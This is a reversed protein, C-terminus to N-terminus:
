LNHFTCAFNLFSAPVSGALAGHYSVAGNNEIVIFAGGGACECLFRMATTPRYGVPLTTLTTVITTSGGTILGGLIITNGQKLVHAVAYGGNFNSWGNILTLNVRTATDNTAGTAIGNLKVKDAPSMVGALSTTASPISANSGGTNTVTVTTSTPSSGLDVTTLGQSLGDLKTKDAGSMLGPISATPTSLSVTGGTSLGIDIATPSVVTRSLTPTGLGDLKIKDSATMVGARTGNAALIDAGSGGSINVGVSATTTSISINQATSNGLGDLKVKDTASLLGASNTTASPLTLGTGGSNSVTIATSSVSASLNSQTANSAVSDLKTKDTATLLGAFSTTAGQITADTGTSSTVVVVSDTRTTALNTPDATGTGTGQSTGTPALLYALVRDGSQGDQQAVATGETTPQYIGAADPTLFGGASVSGGIELLAYGFAVFYGDFTSAVGISPEGHSLLGGSDLTVARGPTLVGNAPIYERRAFPEAVLQYETVAGTVTNYDFTALSVAGAPLEASSELTGLSGSEGVYLTVNVTGTTTLNLSLPIENDSQYVVGGARVVYPQAIIGLSSPDEDVLRVPYNPGFRLAGPQWDVYDPVLFGSRNPVFVFEALLNSSDLGFSPFNVLSLSLKAVGGPAVTIPYSNNTAQSYLTSGNDKGEANGVGLAGYVGLYDVRVREDLTQYVTGDQARVDLALTSITDTGDNLLYVTQTPESASSFEGFDLSSLTYQAQNDALEAPTVTVWSNLVQSIFVSNGGLNYLNPPVLKWNGTSGLRVLIEDSDLNGPDNYGQWVVTNPLSVSSIIAAESYGGSKNKRRHAVQALGVAASSPSPPSTPRQVYSSLYKM